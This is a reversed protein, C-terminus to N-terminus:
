GLPRRENLARRILMGSDLLDTQNENTGEVHTVRAGRFHREAPLGSTARQRRFRSTEDSCTTSAIASGAVGRM